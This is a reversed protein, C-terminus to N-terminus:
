RRGLNEYLAPDIEATPRGTRVGGDRKPAGSRPKVIAYDSGRRVVEMDRGFHGAAVLYQDRERDDGRVGAPYPQHEDPLELQWM